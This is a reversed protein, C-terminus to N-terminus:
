AKDGQHNFLEITALTLGSSVLAFIIILSIELAINDTM